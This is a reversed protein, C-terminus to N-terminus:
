DRRMLVLVAEATSTALSSESKSQPGDWPPRRALTRRWVETVRGVRTFRYVAWLGVMVGVAIALLWLRDVGVAQGFLVVNRSATIPESAM